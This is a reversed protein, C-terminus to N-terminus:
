GRTRLGVIILGGRDFVQHCSGCLEAYDNRSRTYNHETLSAYCTWGVKGCEECVGARPFHANLWQHITERLPTASLARGRRGGPARRACRLRGGGKNDLAVPGCVECVGTRTEEDIELLRHATATAPM